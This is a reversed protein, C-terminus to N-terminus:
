AGCSEQPVPHALLSADEVKIYAVTNEAADELAQGPKVVNYVTQAVSNELVYLNLDFGQTKDVKKFAPSAAKLEDLSSGVHVGSETFYNSSLITIRLIPSGKKGDATEVWFSSAFNQQDEGAPVWQGGCVDSNWEVLTSDSPVPQGIVLDGFGTETVQPGTSAPVDTTSGDGTESAAPEPDPANNLADVITVAAPYLTELDGSSQAMVIWNPGDFVHLYGANGERPDGEVYAADAGAIDVPTVDPLDAIAAENWAGGGFVHVTASQGGIAWICQLGTIEHVLPRTARFTGTDGGITENLEAGDGFLADSDIASDLAVCDVPNPWSGAVSAPAPVTASTAATDFAAIVKPAISRAAAADTGSVGGTIRIGNVAQEIGCFNDGSTGEGFGPGCSEDDITPVAASPVFGLILFGDTNSWTCSLGGVQEIAFNWDIDLSYGIPPTEEYPTFPADGFSALQEDTFVNACDGGFVQEPQAVATATPQPSAPPLEPDRIARVSAGFVAFLIVGVIAVTAVTAISLFLPSIRRAPFAGARASLRVNWQDPDRLLKMRDEPNM